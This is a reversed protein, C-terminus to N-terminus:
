SATSVNMEDALSVKLNQCSTGQKIRATIFVAPCFSIMM